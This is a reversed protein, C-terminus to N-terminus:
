CKENLNHSAINNGDFDSISIESGLDDENYDSPVSDYIEFEDLFESLNNKIAKLKLQLEENTLNTKALHNWETKVPITIWIEREKNGTM